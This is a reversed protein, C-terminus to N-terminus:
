VNGHREEEEDIARQCCAMRGNDYSNDWRLDWGCFECVHYSEDFTTMVRYSTNEPQVIEGEIDKCAAEKEMENMGRGFYSVPYIRVHRGEQILKRGM